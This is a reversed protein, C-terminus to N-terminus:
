TKVGMLTTGVVKIHKFYRKGDETKVQKGLLVLPGGGPELVYTGKKAILYDRRDSWRRVKRSASKIDQADVTRNVVVQGSIGM